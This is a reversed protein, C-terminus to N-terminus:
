KLDNRSLEQVILALMIIVQAYFNDSSFLKWYPLSGTLDFSPVFERRKFRIKQQMKLNIM